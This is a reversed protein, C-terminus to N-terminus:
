VYNEIKINLIKLTKNVGELFLPSSESDSILQKLEEIQNAHIRGSIIIKKSELTTNLEENIAKRKEKIVDAYKTYNIKVGNTECISDNIPKHYFLVDEKRFLTLFSSLIINFIKM